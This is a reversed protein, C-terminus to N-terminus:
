NPTTRWTAPSRALAGRQGRAPHLGGRVRAQPGRRPDLGGDAQPGPRGQAPLDGPRAWSRRSTCSSWNVVWSATTGSAAEELMTLHAELAKRSEWATGYIRQLMPQDERGRWYAGATRLLKFAPVRESSPIHPGRCLDVWAEDGDPRVNRYITFTPDGDAGAVADQEAAGAAVREVIERKYPQDAFM